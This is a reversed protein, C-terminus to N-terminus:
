KKNVKKMKPIQVMIIPNTEVYESMIAINFAEKLLVRATKITQVDLAKGLASKKENLIYDM